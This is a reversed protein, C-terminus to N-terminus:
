ERTNFIRRAVLFFHTIENTKEGTEDRLVMMANVGRKEMEGRQQYIPNMANQRGEVREKETLRGGVWVILAVETNHM